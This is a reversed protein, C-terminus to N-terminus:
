DKALVRLGAYRTEARRGLRAGLVPALVAEAFGVLPIAALAAAALAAAPLAAVALRRVSAAAIALGAGGGVFAWGVALVAIVVVAAIGGALVLAALPRLPGRAALWVVAVGAAVGLGTAVGLLYWDLVGDV